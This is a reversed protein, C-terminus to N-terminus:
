FISAGQLFAIVFSSLKSFPLSMVKGDFTWRTLAITKGTTMHSSVHFNSWLSLQAGFFQHRQITIIYFVRSLGKSQLSILVTLWCQINVPLVSASASAGTSQTHDAVYDTCWLWRILAHDTVQDTCACDRWWHMIALHDTCAWDRSRSKILWTILAQLTVHDPGASSRSEQRSMQM